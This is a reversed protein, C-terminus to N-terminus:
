SNEQMQPMQKDMNMGMNAAPKAPTAKEQASVISASLTFAVMAAVLIATKM